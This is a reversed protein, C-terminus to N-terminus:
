LQVSRWTQSTIARDPILGMRGVDQSPAPQRTAGANEARRVLPRRKPEDERRSELADGDALRRASLGDMAREAHRLERIAARRKRTSREVGVFQGLGVIRSPTERDQRIRPRERGAGEAVIRTRWSM